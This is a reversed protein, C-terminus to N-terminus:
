IKALIQLEKIKMTLLYEMTYSYWLKDRLSGIFLKITKLKQSSGVTGISGNKYLYRPTCLM